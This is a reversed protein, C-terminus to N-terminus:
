LRLELLFRPIYVHDFRSKELRRANQPRDCKAAAAFSLTLEENAASCSLEDM